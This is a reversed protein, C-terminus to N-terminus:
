INVCCYYYHVYIHQVLLSHRWVEIKGNGDVTAMRQQDSGINCCAIGVTRTYGRLWTTTPEDSDM